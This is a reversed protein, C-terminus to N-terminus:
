RASNPVVCTKPLPSATLEANIVPNLGERYVFDANWFVDLQQNNMSVCLPYMGNTTDAQGALDFIQKWDVFTLPPASSGFPNYNLQVFRSSDSSSDIVSNSTLTKFQNYANGCVQELQYNGTLPTYIISRYFGRNNDPVGNYKFGFAQSLADPSTANCSFNLSEYRHDGENVIPRGRNLSLCISQADNSSDSQIDSGVQTWQTLYSQSAPISEVLSNKRVAYAFGGNGATGKAIALVPTPRSPEFTVSDVQSGNLHASLVIGRAATTAAFTEQHNSRVDDVLAEGPYTQLQETTASSGLVAAQDGTFSVGYGTREFVLDDNLGVKGNLPLYYFPNDDVPVHLFNLRVIIKANPRLDNFFSLVTEDDRQVAFRVHYHGPSDLLYTSTAAPFLDLNSYNKVVSFLFRSEDKFIQDFGRLPSAYWDPTGLVAQPGLLDQSLDNRFDTSFGDRQLLGEFDALAQAQTLNGDEIAEEYAQLRKLTFIYFQTSDCYKANPNPEGNLLRAACTDLGITNWNWTWALKPIASPGAFGARNDPGYCAERGGQLLVHFAQTHTQYTALLIAYSISDFSSGNIQVANENYTEVGGGTANAAAMYSEMADLQEPDGYRDKFTANQGELQTVHSIFLHVGKDQAKQILHDLVTKNEPKWDWGSNKRGGPANDTVIVIAKYAEPRFNWDALVFQAAPAWAEDLSVQPWSAQEEDGWLAAKTACGRVKAMSYTIRSVDMGDAELVRLTEEFKTCVTEWTQDLSGSTDVVFAIDVLQNVTHTRTDVVGAMIAVNADVSDTPRNLTAAVSGALPDPVPGPITPYFFVDLNSDPVVLTYPPTLGSLDLDTLLAVLHVNGDAPITQSGSFNIAGTAGRLEFTLPYSDYTPITPPINIYDETMITAPQDGQVGQDTLNFDIVGVTSVTSSPIFQAVVVEQNTTSDNQAELYVQDSSSSFNYDVFCVPDSDLDNHALIATKKQIISSDIPGVIKTQAAQAGRLDLSATHESGQCNMSNSCDLEPPLTVSADCTSHLSVKWTFSLQTGFSRDFSLFAKQTPLFLNPILPNPLPFLCNNIFRAQQLPNESFNFWTKTLNFCANEALPLLYVLLRRATSRTVVNESEPEVDAYVGYAGPLSDTVREVKIEKGASNKTLTFPTLESDNPCSTSDAGSDTINTLKPACLEPSAVRTYLTVKINQDCNSIVKFNRNGGAPITDFVNVDLGSTPDVFRLCSWNQDILQVPNFTGPILDVDVAEYGPKVAHLYIAPLQDTLPLTLPIRVSSKNTADSQATFAGTFDNPTLSASFLVGELFANDSLDQANVYLYQPNGANPILNNLFQVRMRNKPLIRIPIVRNNDPVNQNLVATISADSVSLKARLTTDIGVTAGSTLPLPIEIHNSDILLAEPARGNFDVSVNNYSRGSANYISLLLAYNLDPYLSYSSDSLSLVRNTSLEKITEILVFTPCSGGGVLCLPKKLQFLRRLAGTFQEPEATKAGFHVEFNADPAVDDSDSVKVKVLFVVSTNATLSNFRLISRKAPLDVTPGNEDFLNGNTMNADAYYAVSTGPSVTGVISIVSNASSLDLNDAVVYVVPNTADRTSRLRFQFYYQGGKEMTPPVVGQQWDWLVNNRSSLVRELRLDFNSDVGSLPYLIATVNITSDRAGYLNIPPLVVSDYNTKNIKVNVLQSVKFNKSVQGNAGTSLAYSNNDSSPTFTVTADPIVAGNIDQVTVRITAQGTILTVNLDKQQGEVGLVTVSQGNADANQATAYYSASGPLNYASVLGNSGTKGYFVPIPYLTDYVYSDINSLLTNNDSKVFVNAQFANVPNGDGDRVIPKLRVILGNADNKPILNIHAVVATLHSAESIVAYYPSVTTVNADAIPFSYIGASSAQSEDMLFDNKYLRVNAAVGSGSNFDIIKLAIKRQHDPPLKTLALTVDLATGNSLDVSKSADAYVGEHDFSFVTQAAPTVELVAVGGEDTLGVVETGSTARVKITMGAVPANSNADKTRVTLSVKQPALRSLSLVTSDNELTRGSLETYGPFTVSVQLRSCRAIKASNLEVTSTTFTQSGRSETTPSLCFLRITGSKDQNFSLSSDFIPKGTLQDKIALVYKAPASSTSSLTVTKFLDDPPLFSLSVDKEEFGSKSIIANITFDDHGALVFSVFGDANTDFGNTQDGLLGVGSLVVQAGSIPVQDSSVVQILGTFSQTMFFTSVVFAALGIVLLLGLLLVLIFSPFVRDIPDILNYIPIKTSLGDLFNYYRDEAAYYWNSFTGLIANSTTRPSSSSTKEAVSSRSDTKPTTSASAGKKTPSGLGLRSKLSDLISQSDSSSAPAPKVPTKKSTESPM